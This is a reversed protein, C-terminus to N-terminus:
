KGGQVRRELSAVKNDTGQKLSVNVNKPAIYEQQQEQPGQAERTSGKKQWTYSKPSTSFHLFHLFLETLSKGGVKVFALAFGTSILVIAAPFFISFSTTFYLVFAIATPVGIYIFQRLTLPGVIRAEHEIQPVKFEM